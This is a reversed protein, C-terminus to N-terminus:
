IYTTLPTKRQKKGCQQCQSAKLLLKLKVLVELESSAEEDKSGDRSWKEGDDTM